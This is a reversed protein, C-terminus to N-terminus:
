KSEGKISVACQLEQSIGDRTIKECLKDAKKLSQSVWISRESRNIAEIITRSLRLSETAEDLSLLCGTSCIRIAKLVVLDLTKHARKSGFFQQTSLVARTQEVPSLLNSTKPKRHRECDVHYTKQSALVALCFLHVSQAEVDLGKLTKILEDQFCALVDHPVVKLQTAGLSELM